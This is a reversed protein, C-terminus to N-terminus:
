YEKEIKKKVKDFSIKFKLNELDYSFEQTCKASDKEVNQLETSNKKQLQFTKRIPRFKKDFELGIGSLEYDENIVMGSLIFLENEFLELEECKVVKVYYDSERVDKVTLNLNRISDLYFHQYLEPNIEEDADYIDVGEEEGYNVGVTDGDRYKLLGWGADPPVVARDNEVDFCVENQHYGDGLIVRMYAQEAIIDNIKRADEAKPSCAFLLLGISVVAVLIWKKKM